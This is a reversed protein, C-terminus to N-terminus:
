GECVFVKGYIKTPGKKFSSIKRDYDVKGKPSLGIKSLGEGLIGTNYRLLRYLDIYMISM